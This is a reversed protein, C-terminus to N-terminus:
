ERRGEITVALKLWEEAVRLWAEKDIASVSRAAQERAEDAQKRFKTAEDSMAVSIICWLSNVGCLFIIAEALQCRGGHPV